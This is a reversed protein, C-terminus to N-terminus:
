FEASIALDINWKPIKRLWFLALLLELNDKCNDGELVKWSLVFIMTLTHAMSYDICHILFVKVTM